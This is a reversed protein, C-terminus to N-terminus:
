FNFKRKRMGVNLVLALCMFATLMSSRGYSMFPLTIGTIPMIGITMGINQLVSFLITSIIGVSIVSGFIDKANQAIRVLRYILIGYKPNNL